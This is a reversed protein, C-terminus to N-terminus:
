SFRQRAINTILEALHVYQMTTEDDDECMENEMLWKKHKM